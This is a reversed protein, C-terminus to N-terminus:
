NELVIGIEQIFPVDKLTRQSRMKRAIFSSTQYRSAKLSKRTRYHNYILKFINSFSISFSVYDQFHVAKADKILALLGAIGASCGLDCLVKGAFDVRDTNETFYDVLDQTCEWIKYGGEYVGSILDSNNMDNININDVYGIEMDNSSFMQFIRELLSKAIEEYQSQSIEISKSEKLAIPPDQEKIEEQKEEDEDTKNFNFKFM